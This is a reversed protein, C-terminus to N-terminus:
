RQNKQVKEHRDKLVQTGFIPFLARWIERESFVVPTEIHKFRITTLFNYERIKVTQVCHSIEEM